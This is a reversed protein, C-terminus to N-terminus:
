DEEKVNKLAITENIKNIVEEYAGAYAPDSELKIYHERISHIITAHNRNLTRAIDNYSLLSVRRMIACYIHRADVFVRYRRKGRIESESVGLVDSVAGMIHREMLGTQDANMTAVKDFQSKGKLGSFVYHNM